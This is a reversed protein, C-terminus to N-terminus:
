FQTVRKFENFRKTIERSKLGALRKVGFGEVCFSAMITGYIIAQKMVSASHSKKKSVYGIFGGAFSDGAGTPDFINELLLAPSIFVSDKSFLLVGHEGKKIVIYKPGM